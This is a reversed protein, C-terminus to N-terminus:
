PPWGSAPGSEAGEDQVRKASPEARRAYLVVGKQLATRALPTDLEKLTYPFVEVPFDVAFKGVWEGLREFFPKDDQCLVVLVDADSGPVARGEALSGFLVVKVVREDDQAVREAERRLAEVLGQQDLWFVKVTGFSEEEM